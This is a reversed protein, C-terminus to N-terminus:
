AKPAPLGPGKCAAIQSIGSLGSSPWFAQLARHKQWFFNFSNFYTLNTLDFQLFMWSLGHIKSVFLDLHRKGRSSRSSGTPPTTVASASRVHLTASMAQDPFNRHTKCTPYIQRCTLSSEIGPPVVRKGLATHIAWSQSPGAFFTAVHQFCKKSDVKAVGHFSERSSLSTWTQQDRSPLSRPHLAAPDIASYEIPNTSALM